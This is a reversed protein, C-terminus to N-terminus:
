RVIPVAIESNSSGDWKKEVYSRSCSSGDYWPMFDEIWEHYFNTVEYKAMTECSNGVRSKRCFQPFLCKVAARSVCSLREVVLERRYACYNLTKLTSIVCRKLKREPSVENGEIEEVTFARQSWVRIEVFKFKEGFCRCFYNESFWSM